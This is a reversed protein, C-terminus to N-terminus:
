SGIVYTIDVRWVGHGAIALVLYNLDPTMKLNQAVNDRIYFENTPMGNNFPKWSEGGDLSIFVGFSSSLFLIDHNKPHIILQYYESMNKLGNMIPAWSEGGNISKMVIGGFTNRHMFGKNMGNKTATYMINPDEDDIVVCFPWQEGPMGKSTNMWTHGRDNSRWIGNYTGAFLTEHNDPHMTLSFIGDNGLGSSSCRWTMGNDESIFFGGPFQGLYIRGEIYPDFMLASYQYLRREWAAWEGIGIPKGLHVWDQSDENFRYVGYGNTGVFVSGNETIDISMIDLTTLGDNVHAWEIGGNSSRFVGMDSVIYVMGETTPDFKVRRVGLDRFLPETEYVGYMPFWTNAGDRSIYVGHDYIGLFINQPDFPDIELSYYGQTLPDLVEFSPLAFNCENWTIGRDTSKFVGGPFATAYIINSNTPDIKIQINSIHPTPGSTEDWKISNDNKLSGHYVGGGLTGIYISNESSVMSGVSLYDLDKNETGWTEGSNTSFYVGTSTGIL